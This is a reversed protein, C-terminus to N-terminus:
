RLKISDMSRTSKVCKLSPPLIETCPPMLHSRFGFSNLVCDIMLTHMNPQYPVPLCMLLSLPWFLCVLTLLPMAPYLSVQLHDGLAPLAFSSYRHATASRRQTPGVDTRRPFGLELSVNRPIVSWFWGSDSNPRVPTLTLTSFQGAAGQRDGLASLDNALSGVPHPMCPQAPPSFVTPGPTPPTISTTM